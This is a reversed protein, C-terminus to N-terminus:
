KIKRYMMQPIIVDGSMVSPIDKYVKAVEEELPEIQRDKIMHRFLDIAGETYNIINVYFTHGPEVTEISKKLFGKTARM